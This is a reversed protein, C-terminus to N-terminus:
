EFDASIENGIIEKIMQLDYNIDELLELYESILLNGTLASKAKEYQRTSEDLNKRNKERDNVMKKQLELLNNFNDTIEKDQDIIKEIKKFRLILEDNELEKLLNVLSNM